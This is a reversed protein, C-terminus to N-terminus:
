LSVVIRFGYDTFRRDPPLSSRAACRTVPIQHRWSGGRSVRRVGTRPGTPDHSPSRRYYDPSYWDSCWEHVGDAMHYLGFENAPTSFVRPPQDLPGTDPFSAGPPFQAEGWPYPTSAGGGAAWAREAETPLRVPRGSTDSLWQCYALADFWSVGVV